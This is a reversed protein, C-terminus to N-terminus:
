YIRKCDNNGFVRVVNRNNIAIYKYKRINIEKNTELSMLLVIGREAM